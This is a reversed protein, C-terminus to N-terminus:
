IKTQFQGIFPINFIEEDTLNLEAKLKEHVKKNANIMKVEKTATLKEIGFHKKLKPIVKGCQQIRKSRKFIDELALITNNQHDPLEITERIALIDGFPTLSYVAKEIEKKTKEYGRPRDNEINQYWVINHISYLTQFLFYENTKCNRINSPTFLSDQFFIEVIELIFEKHNHYIDNLGLLGNECGENRYPKYKVRNISVEDDFLYTDLMTLICMEENARDNWENDKDYLIKM